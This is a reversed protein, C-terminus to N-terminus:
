TSLFTTLFYILTVSYLIKLFTILLSKLDKAKSIDQGGSIGFNMLSPSFTAPSLNFLNKFM